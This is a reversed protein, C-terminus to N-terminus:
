KERDPKRLQAEKLLDRAIPAAVASGGGGHEVVVSCVYRPNKVPAYGVFLAHHRFRWELDENMIGRARQERDIKKVQATGTKRGFSYGEEEIKSAYATGKENIVVADMGRKILALNSDKVDIKEAVERIHRMATRQAIEIDTLHAM